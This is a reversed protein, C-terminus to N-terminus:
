APRSTPRIRWHGLEEIREIESTKMVGIPAAEVRWLARSGDDPRFLGDSARNWWGGSERWSSLVTHIRFRQGNYIFEIPEGGALFIESKQHESKEFMQEFELSRGRCPCAALLSGNGFRCGRWVQKFAERLRDHTLIRGHDCM